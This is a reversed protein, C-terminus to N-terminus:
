ACSASVGGNDSSLIVYSGDPAILTIDLDIDLTHMLSDIRLAILSSASTSGSVTLTPNIGGFGDPIPYANTDTFLIPVGTAMIIAGSGGTCLMVDSGANVIPLANVSLTVADSRACGNTDTVTVTFTTTITIM